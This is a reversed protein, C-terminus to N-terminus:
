PYISIQMGYYIYRLKSSQKDFSIIHLKPALMRDFAVLIDFDRKAHFACTNPFIGCDHEQQPHCAEIMKPRSEWIIWFDCKKPSAVNYYCGLLFGRSLSLKNNQKQTVLTSNGWPEQNVSKTKSILLWWVLRAFMHHIIDAVWENKWQHVVM